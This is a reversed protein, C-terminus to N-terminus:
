ESSIFVESSISFLEEKTSDTTIMKTEAYYGIIGSTNIRTDKGFFVFDGAELPSGTIPASLTVSNDTRNIAIVTGLIRLTNGPSMTYVTDLAATGAAGGGPNQPNAQLSVNIAGNIFLTEQGIPVNELVSGLGQTSFEQTDLNAVTTDIGQIYNYFSGEKKVFV